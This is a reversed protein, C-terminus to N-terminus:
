LVCFKFLSSFLQKEGKLKTYGLSSFLHAKQVTLNWESLHFSTVTPVEVQFTIIDLYIQNPALMICVCVTVGTGESFLKLLIRGDPARLHKVNHPLLSVSIICESGTYIASVVYKEHTLTYIAYGLITSWKFDM